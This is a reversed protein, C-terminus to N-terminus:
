LPVAVLMLSPLPQLALWDDTQGAMSAVHGGVYCFGLVLSHLDPLSRELCFVVRGVHVEDSAMDLIKLMYDRLHSRLCSQPMHVYLSRLDPEFGLENAKENPALGTTISTATDHKQVVAGTWGPCLLELGADEVKLARTNPENWYPFIRRMFAEATALPHHHIDGNAPSMEPTGPLDFRATHYLLGAVSSEAYSNRERRSTTFCNESSPAEFNKPLTSDDDPTTATRLLPPPSPPPSLPLAHLHSAVFRNQTHMRPIAPIGSAAIQPATERVSLRRGPRQPAPMEASTM